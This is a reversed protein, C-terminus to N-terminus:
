TKVTSSSGSAAGECAFNSAHALTIGHVPGQHRRDVAVARADSPASKPRPRASSPKRRSCRLSYKSSMRRALEWGTDAVSVLVSDDDDVKSRVHLIRPDETAAMSDIANNVLNVLVQQLQIRDGTVQPAESGSEFRVLIDV